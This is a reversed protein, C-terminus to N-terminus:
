LFAMMSFPSSKGFGSFRLIAWIVWFALMCKVMDLAIVLIGIWKGFVRGSTPAAPITPVMTGRTKKFFYKGIVVGNPIGGLLYGFLFCVLGVAINEWHKMFM